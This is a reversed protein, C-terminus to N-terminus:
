GGLANHHRDAWISKLINVHIGVVGHAVEKLHPRVVEHLKPLAHFPVSPFLHHEAHYPMNWYIARIFLNTMTSRTNNLMNPSEDMGTHESMRAARLVPEGIIRPLLWLYVILWTQFYISVGALIVYIFVMLRTENAVAGLEISPIFEREQETFVGISHSILNGLMRHWINYSSVHLLYEGFGRPFAVRDPDLEPHQTYTHHAMHRYKLYLFPRLILLGSIRGVLVNLWRTKFASSHCAEHMPAFLFALLTGQLLLLPVSWWSGIAIYLLYGTIGISGLHAAFHLAGAMNTRRMYPRLEKRSMIDHGAARWDKGDM